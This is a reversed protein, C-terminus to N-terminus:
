PKRRDEDAPYNKQVSEVMEAARVELANALRLLATLSPQKKGRELLSIYTPDLYSEEALKEQSLGHKKRRARLVQGFIRAVTEPKINGEQM